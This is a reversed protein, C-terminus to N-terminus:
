LWSDGSPSQFKYFHRVTWYADAFAHGSRIV